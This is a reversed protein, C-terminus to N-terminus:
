KLSLLPIVVEFVCGDNVIVIDKDYCKYRDSILKLGKGTSGESKEKPVISNSVVITDNKEEIAIRLPRDESYLNHKLANEVLSQITFPPVMASLSSVQITSDISSPFRCSVLRLYHSVVELEEEVSILSQDANLVMHRYLVAMDRSFEGAAPHQNEIMITLTSLNNLMFHNDFLMQLHSNREEDVLRKADSLNVAMISAVRNSYEIMENYRFTLYLGTLFATITSYVFFANLWQEYRSYDYFLLIISSAGAIILFLLIRRLVIAVKTYKRVRALVIECAVMTVISLFLSELISYFIDKVHSVFVSKESMIAGSFWFKYYEFDIILWFFYDLFLACLFLLLLSRVITNFRSKSEM